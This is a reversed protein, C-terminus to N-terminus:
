SSPSIIDQSTFVAANPTCVHGWNTTSKILVSILLLENNWSRTGSLATGTIVTGPVLEVLLQELLSQEM